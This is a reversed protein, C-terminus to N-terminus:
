RATIAPTTQGMGVSNRRVGRSIRGLYLGFRHCYRCCSGELRILPYCGLSVVVRGELCGVFWTARSHSPSNLRSRVHDELPLGKSWIDFVNRHAAALEEDSAAHITLDTAMGLEQRDRHTTRARRLALPRPLENRGNPWVSGPGVYAGHHSLNPQRRPQRSSAHSTSSHRRLSSISNASPVTAM